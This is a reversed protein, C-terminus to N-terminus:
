VPCNWQCTPCLYCNARISDCQKQRQEEKSHASLGGFIAGALAGVVAGEPGMMAGAMGWSAANGAIGSAYNYTQNGDSGAVPCPQFCDARDCNRFLQCIIFMASCAGADSMQAGCNESADYLSQLYDKGQGGYGTGMIASIAKSYYAYQVAIPFSPNKFKLLYLFPYELVLAIFFPSSQRYSSGATIASNMQNILYAYKDKIYLYKLLAFLLFGGLILSWFLYSKYLMNGIKGTTETTELDAVTEVRELRALDM